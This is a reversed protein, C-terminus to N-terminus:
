WYCYCNLRCEKACNDIDHRCLKKVYFYKRLAVDSAQDRANCKKDQEALLPREPSLFYVCICVCVCLCVCVCVCAFVLNVLM